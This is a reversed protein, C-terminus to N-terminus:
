YFLIEIKSLMEFKSLKFYEERLNEFNKFFKFSLKFKKKWFEIQNRCNIEFKLKRVGGGREGRM